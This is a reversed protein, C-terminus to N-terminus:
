KSVTGSVTGTFNLGEYLKEIPVDLIYALKLANKLSPLREGNEWTSFLGHSRHGLMSVIRKQGIRARKRYLWINNLGVKSKIHGSELRKM